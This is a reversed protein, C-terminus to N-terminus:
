VADRDAGLETVVDRLHDLIREPRPLVDKRMYFSFVLKDVYSWVTINLNGADVINGTSLLEELRLRGDLAYLPDKPGPVNSIVVNAHPNQRKEQRRDIAANMLRIATGPLYDLYNDFRRGDDHRAHVIAARAAKKIAKLRQGFDEIQQFLPLVAVALNNNHIDSNLLRKLNSGGQDGIPMATVLSEAPLADVEQLYRKLAESCVGLVLTNITCDYRRSLAKFGPLSFSEYRYLREKSRGRTNLVTFPASFPPLVSDPSDEVSEGRRRADRLHRYFHPLEVAYSRALDALADGILRAKGPINETPTEEVQESELPMGALHAKELLRAVTKGDALAHHVKFVVAIRGEELGRILWIEWLPRDPDLPNGMMDSLFDCLQAKGGPAPLEADYIHDDPSFDPDSVWVPHHLDFPIRVIRLGARTAGAITICRKIFERIEDVDPRDSERTARYIAVKLTVFPSSPTDCYVAFADSGRLRKMISSRMEEPIWYKGIM